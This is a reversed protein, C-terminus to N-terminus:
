WLYKDEIFRSVSAGQKIDDCGAFDEWKNDICNWNCLWLYKNLGLSGQYSLEVLCKGCDKPKHDPYLLWVLEKKM